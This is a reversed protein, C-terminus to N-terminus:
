RTEVKIQSTNKYEPFQELYQNLSSLRYRVNRGLKLFPPASAGFLVGTHRSQKLTAASVGLLEAASDNSLIVIRLEPKQDVIKENM